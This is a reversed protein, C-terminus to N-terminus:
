PFYGPIEHIPHKISQKCADFLGCKPPTQGFNGTFDFRSNKTAFRSMKPLGVPFERLSLQFPRWERIHKTHVRCLRQDQRNFGSGRALSRAKRVKLSGNMHSYRGGHKYEVLVHTLDGTTTYSLPLSAARSRAGPRRLSRAAERHDDIIRRYPRTTFLRKLRDTWRARGDRRHSFV